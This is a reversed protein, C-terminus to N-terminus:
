RPSAPRRSHRRDFAIRQAIEDEKAASWSVSPGSLVSSGEEKLWLDLLRRRPTRWRRWPRDFDVMLAAAKQAEARADCGSFATSAVGSGGKKELLLLSVTGATGDDWWRQFVLSFKLVTFRPPCDESSRRDDKKRVPERRSESFPWFLGMNSWPRRKTRRAADIKAAAM